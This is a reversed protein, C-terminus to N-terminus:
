VLETLEVGGKEIKFEQMIISQEFGDPLVKPQQKSRSKTMSNSKKTRGVQSFFEDNHDFM